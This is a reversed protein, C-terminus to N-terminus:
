WAASLGASIAQEGLGAFEAFIGVPGLRTAAGMALQYHHTDTGTVDKGNLEWQVPGAFVRAAPVAVLWVLFASVFSLLFGGSFLRM